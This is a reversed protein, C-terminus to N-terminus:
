LVDARGAGRGHLDPRRCSPPPAATPGTRRIGGGVCGLRRGGRVRLWECPRERGGGVCGLRVVRLDHGLGDRDRRRRPPGVAPDHHWDLGAVPRRAPPPLPFPPLYPPALRAQRLRQREAQGGGRM